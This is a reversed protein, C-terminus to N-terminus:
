DFSNIWSVGVIRGHWKQMWFLQVKEALFGNGMALVALKEVHFPQGAMGVELILLELSVQLLHGVITSIGYLM